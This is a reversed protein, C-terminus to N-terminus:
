ARSWFFGKHQKQNNNICKCVASPNFGDKKVLGISEYVKNGNTVKISSHHLSGFKGLFSPKRKLKNYSHLDNESQTVWELNSLKHNSRDGDIHNVQPKNEPNDIYTEAVLRHVYKFKSKGNKDVLAVRCYGATHKLCKMNKNRIKSLINGNIDITYNEFGKIDM